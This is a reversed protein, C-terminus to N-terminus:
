YIDSLEAIFLEVRLGNLSGTKTTVFQTSNQGGYNFKFCSGYANDFYWKFDAQSCQGLNFTCSFFLEDYILSM